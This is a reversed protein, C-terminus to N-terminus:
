AELSSVRENPRRESAADPLILTFRSGRPLNPYVELQGGHSSAIQRVLNLGIGSGGTKTTFPPVFSPDGADKLGCGNDAVTVVVADPCRECNVEIRPQDVDSVAETANKLLNILAQELLRPDASCSLQPPVVSRTLIVGKERLSAGLLRDIGALLEDLRLVQLNPAPTDMVMRYREVFDMLGLSRRNIAELAGAVEADDTAGRGAQLLLNLSESLSAIATLSNMIEHALVGAMDKWAKLEVADLEGAIAHLSLMRRRGQGPSSLQSVSVFMQRQAPLNIIQRTGARLALLEGAAQAGIAKMDELRDVPEGALSRASRNVLEVRGDDKVVILAAAV